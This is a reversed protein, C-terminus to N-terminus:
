RSRGGAEGRVAVADAGQCASPAIFVANVRRLNPASRIWEPVQEYVGFLRYGKLELHSRMMEFGVHYHNEPSVSCECQLATVRGETLMRDAGVVVEFDHGETDIKLFDIHDIGHGECYDDVTSVAVEEAGAEGAESAADEGYVNLHHMMPNRTQVLIAAGEVSSLALPEATVRPSGAFGAKLALYFPTCPEFSVIQARPFERLYRRASQGVNAGVDFIMEFRHEPLAQRLDHSVSVGRPLMRFVHIDFRALLRKLATKAPNEREAGPLVAQLRRALRAESPSRGPSRDNAPESLWRAV